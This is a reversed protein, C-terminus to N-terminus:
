NCYRNPFDDEPRYIVLDLGWKYIVMVWPVTQSSCKRGYEMSMWCIRMSFNRQWFSSPLPSLFGKRKLSSVTWDSFSLHVNFVLASGVQSQQGWILLFMAAYPNLVSPLQCVTPSTEWQQYKQFRSLRESSWNGGKSATFLFRNKHRHQQPNVPSLVHLCSQYCLLHEYSNAM